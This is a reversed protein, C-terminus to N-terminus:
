GSLNLLPLTVSWRLLGASVAVAVAKRQNQDRLRTSQVENHSKHLPASPSVNRAYLVLSGARGGKAETHKEPGV